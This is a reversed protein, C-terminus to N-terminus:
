LVPEWNDGYIGPAERGAPYTPPSSLLYLLVSTSVTLHVCAAIVLALAAGKLGFAPVLWACAAANGGAVLLFMPVQIRFCQAATIGYNLLSAVCSIGAAIVLLVFVGAHAAYEPTFLITLVRAGMARAAAFSILGFGGGIAVLKLLSSRFSVLDGDAYYRALRPITSHGLADAFTAVAVTTYAMASFIGLQYEGLHAEIFYRPMNLNLSVLAMVLGLPLALRTLRWQRDLHLSPWVLSAFRRGRRVDWCILVALWAAALVLIAWVLEHTLYLGAGLAIVSLAGRVMMSKGTQDLHDNLQFLGYFVDSFSEIAKLLAVALIVMATQQRYGQAFTISVIAALATLTTMVRLGLYDGFSYRRRADTAQVSRLQLNTFMLVPGSIALGLSFRGVMFSSGLKALVVVMGWQCAAYVVNGSLAWAFNSRWSREDQPLTQADPGQVCAAMHTTGTM